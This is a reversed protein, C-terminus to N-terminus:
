AYSREIVYRLQKMGTLIVNGEDDLNDALAVATFCHTHGFKDTLDFHHKGIPTCTEYAVTFAVELEVELGSELDGRHLATQMAAELSIGVSAETFPEIIGAFVNM